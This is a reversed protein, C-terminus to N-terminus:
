KIIISLAKEAKCRIERSAREVVRDIINKKDAYVVKVVAENIMRRYANKEINYREGVLQKAIQETVIDQLEKEDVDVTIKM